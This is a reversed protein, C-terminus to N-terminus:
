GRVLGHILKGLTSVVVVPAGGLALAKQWPALAGLLLVEKLSPVKLCRMITDIAPETLLLTVTAATAFVLLLTFFRTTANRIWRRRSFFWLVVFFLIMAASDVIGASVLYEKNAGQCDEARLDAGSLLGEVAEAADPVADPAATPLAGGLDDAPLAEEAFAGGSFATLSAAILAAIVAQAAPLRTATNVWM